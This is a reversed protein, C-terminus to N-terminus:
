LETLRGCTLDIRYSQSGETGDRSKKCIINLRTPDSDKDRALILNLDADAAIDGSGKYRVLGKGDSTAENPLQSFVIMGCQNLRGIQAIRRSIRKLAQYETEKDQPDVKGIYDIIAVQPRYFRISRGIGEIDTQKEFIRLPANETFSWAAGLSQHEATNLAAGRAIRRANIGTRNALLRSLYRPKSMELSYLHVSAGADLLANTMSVSLWSKGVGMFAGIAHYQGAQIGDCWYDYAALGTTYGILADSGAIRERTVQLRSLGDCPNGDERQGARENLGDIMAGAAAIMGDADNSTQPANMLESGVQVLSRRQSDRVIIAAYERANEPHGDSYAIAQLDAASMRIIDSKALDDITTILDAALGHQWRERLTAYAFGLREDSFDYPEIELGVLRILDPSNLICGILAQEVVQSVLPIM